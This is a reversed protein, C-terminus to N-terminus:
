KATEAAEDVVSIDSFGANGDYRQSFPRAESTPYFSDSAMVVRDVRRVVRQGDAPLVHIDLNRARRGMEKLTTADSLAGHTVVGRDLVPLSSSRWVPMAPKGELLPSVSKSITQLCFAIGGVLVVCHSAIWGWSARYMPVLVHMTGLITTETSADTRTEMFQGNIRMENTVSIALAEFMKHIGTKNQGASIRELIEPDDASLTPRNVGDDDTAVISGSAGNFGTTMNRLGQVRMPNIILSPNTRTRNLPVTQTTPFMTSNSTWLNQLHESISLIANQSVTYHGPSVDDSDRFVLGERRLAATYKDFQLDNPILGDQLFGKPIGSIDTNYPKWAVPAL